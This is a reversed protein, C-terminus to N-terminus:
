VANEFNGGVPLGNVFSTASISKIILQQLRLDVVLNNRNQYTLDQEYQRSCGIGGFVFRM